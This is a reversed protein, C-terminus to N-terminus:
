LYPEVKGFEHFAQSKVRTNICMRISKLPENDGFLGRREGDKSKWRAQNPFAAHLQELARNQRATDRQTSCGGPSQVKGSKVLYKFLALHPHGMNILKLFAYADENLDIVGYGIDEATLKTLDYFTNTFGFSNDRYHGWSSTIKFIPLRAHGHYYGCDMATEVYKVMDDFVEQSMAEGVGLPVRRDDRERIETLHITTDDDLMWIRQGAYMETILRRTGAIGDVDDPVTVIKAAHGHWTEYAEKESERVVLHPVYGEPFMTLATVAGARKYSPIVFQIM